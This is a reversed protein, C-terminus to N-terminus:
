LHFGNFFLFYSVPVGAAIGVAALAGAFYAIRRNPSPEGGRRRARTFYVFTGVAVLLSPLGFAVASLLAAFVSAALLLFEWPFGPAPEEDAAPPAESAAEHGVIAPDHGNTSTEPQM